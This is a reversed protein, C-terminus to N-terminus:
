PQADLPPLTLILGIHILNPNDGIAARNAAYIARWGTDIAHADATSGLRRQAIAWLCDGPQVIYTSNAPRAAATVPAPPAPAAAPAPAPDIPEATIPPILIVPGTPPTTPVTSPSTAREALADPTAVLPRTTTTTSTSAQDLWGRVGDTAGAPRVGTFSALLALVSVVATRVGIPLTLDLLALVRGACQRRRLAEAVFGLALLVGAAAVAGVAARGVLAGLAEGLSGDHSERVM